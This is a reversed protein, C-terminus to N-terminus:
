RALPSMPRNAAAIDKIDKQQACAVSGILLISFLTLKLKM